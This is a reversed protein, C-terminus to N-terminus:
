AMAGGQMKIDIGQKFTRSAPDWQVILSMLATRGVPASAMAKVRLEPDVQLRVSSQGTFNIQSGVRVSTDGKDSKHELEAVLSTSPAMKRLVALKVDKNSTVEGTFVNQKDASKYRFVFSSLSKRLPFQYKLETGLAFRKGFSKLYQLCTENGKMFKFSYMGGEDRPHSADTGFFMDPPMGGRKTWQLVSDVPGAQQQVIGVISGMSDVRGLMHGQRFQNAIALSYNSSQPSALSLQQLVSTQVGPDANPDQSQLVKQLTIQAGDINWEQDNGFTDLSEKNYEEYKRPPKVGQGFM